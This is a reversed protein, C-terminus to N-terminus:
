RWEGALTWGGWDAVAHSEKLMSLQAARLAALRGKGSALNAHFRTMLLETARDEVQWLAGVVSQAGAVQFARQLGFVGEGEVVSGVGTECSSLVVLQVSTLNLDVVEEGMLRGDNNSLSTALASTSAQNNAGALILCSHLLSTPLNTAAPQDTVQLASPARLDDSTETPKDGAAASTQTRRRSYEGHTAIHIVRSQPMLQCLRSEDAELGLLLRTNEAPWHRAIAQIERRSGALQEWQRMTNQESIPGYNVGGVLLTSSNDPSQAGMDKSRTMVDLLATGHQATAIAYDEILLRGDGNSPLAAWPVRWLQSDPVVVITSVGKLHQTLPQWLRKALEAAATPARSPLQRRLGRLSGNGRIQGRWQTVLENIPEAAGISIRRVRYGDPSAPAKSWVFADYYDTPASEGTASFKVFELLAMDKTFGDLRALDSPTASPTTQAWGSPLAPAEAIARELQQKREEIEGVSNRWEASWGVADGNGYVNALRRRTARLQQYSDQVAPIERGVERRRMQERAILGRSRWLMEYISKTDAASSERALQYWNEFSQLLEQQFDFSEAESMARIMVSWHELQVQLAQKAFEQAQDPQQQRLSVEALLKMTPVLILDSRALHEQCLAYAEDLCRRARGLEDKALWVRSCHTLQDVYNPSAKGVSSATAQLAQQFRSLALDTDGRKLAIQGLLSLYVGRAAPSSHASAACIDHAETLFREAGELDGESLLFRGSRGLLYDDKLEPHQSQIDLCRRYLQRAVVAGGLNSHYDALEQLTFLKMQKFDHEEALQLTAEWNRRAEAGLNIWSYATGLVFHAQSRAQPDVGGWDEHVQLARQFELTAESSMGRSQWADGLLCHAKFLKSSHKPGAQRLARAALPCHHRHVELYDTQYPAASLYRLRANAIRPDLSDLSTLYSALARAQCAFAAASDGANTHCQGLLEYGRGVLPCSPNGELVRNAAELHEVAPETEHLRALAVGLQHEIAAALWPTDTKSSQCAQFAERAAAALRKPPGDAMPSASEQNDDLMKAVLYARISSRLREMSSEDQLQASGLELAVSMRWDRALHDASAREAAQALSRLPTLEGWPQWIRGALQAPLRLLQGDDVLGRRRVDSELESKDNPSLSHALLRHVYFCDLVSDSSTPLRMELALQESSWQLAAAFRGQLIDARVQQSLRDVLQQVQRRQGLGSSQRGLLWFELTTWDEPSRRDATVAVASAVNTPVADRPGTSALVRYQRPLRAVGHQLHIDLLLRGSRLQNGPPLTFSISQPRNTNTPRWGVTTGHRDEDVAAQPCYSSYPGSACPAASTASANSLPIRRLDNTLFSLMRRSDSSARHRWIEERSESLGVIECGQRYVRLARNYPHSWLRIEDVPIAVGLDLEWWPSSQMTTATGSRDVDGDIAKHPAFQKLTSSQSATGQAAVNAGFSLVQLETIRVSDHSSQKRVRVYRVTPPHFPRKVDMDIESAQIETIQFAADHDSKGNAAGDSTDPLAELCLSSLIQGPEVALEIRYVDSREQASAVLISGDELIQAKARRQSSFHTVPLPVWRASRQQEAWETAQERLSTDTSALERRLRDVHDVLPKRDDFTSSAAAPKELPATQATAVGCGLLVVSVALLPVRILNQM